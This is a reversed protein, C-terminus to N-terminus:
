GNACADTLLKRHSPSDLLDDSLLAKAEDSRVVAAFIYKKVTAAQRRPVLDFVNVFAVGHL